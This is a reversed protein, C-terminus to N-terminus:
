LAVKHITNYIPGGRTLTSEILEIEKVETCGFSKKKDFLEMLEPIKRQVRALTLHPVYNKEEMFGVIKLEEDVLKTLRVLDESEVGIWVVRIYNENPFAGVGRLTIEFPGFDAVQALVGKIEEIKKEAVEGLFKLNVHLNEPEVTKLGEFKKLRELLEVISEFPPVRIGVFLRM